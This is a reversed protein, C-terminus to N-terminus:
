QNLQKFHRDVHTIFINNNHPGNNVFNKPAFGINM